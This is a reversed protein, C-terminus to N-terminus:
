NFGITVVGREVEAPCALCKGVGNLAGGELINCLWPSAKWFTDGPLSYMSYQPFGHNQLQYVEHVDSDTRLSQFTYSLFALAFDIQIALSM